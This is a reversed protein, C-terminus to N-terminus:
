DLHKRIWEPDVAIAVMIALAGPWILSVMTMRQLLAPRGIHEEVIEFRTRGDEAKPGIGCRNLELMIFFLAAGIGWGTFVWMLM